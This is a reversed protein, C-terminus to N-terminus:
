ENDGGIRRAIADYVAQRDGEDIEAVRMVVDGSSGGSAVATFAFAVGDGIM